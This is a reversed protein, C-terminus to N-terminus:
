AYLFTGLSIALSAPCQGSPEPDTALLTSNPCCPDATCPPYLIWCLFISVLHPATSTFLRCRGNSIFLQCMEVKKVCVLAAYYFLSSLYQGFTCHILYGLGKKLLSNVHPHLSVSKALSPCLVLLEGLIADGEEMRHKKYEVM